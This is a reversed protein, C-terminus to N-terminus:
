QSRLLTVPRDPTATAGYGPIGSDSPTAPGIPSRLVTVMGTPSIEVDEARVGPPLDVAPRIAALAPVGGSSQSFAMQGQQPLTAEKVRHPAEEIVPSAPLIPAAPVVRALSPALASPDGMADPSPKETDPRWLDTFAWGTAVALAVVGFVKWSRGM